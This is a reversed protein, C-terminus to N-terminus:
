LYLSKCVQRAVLLNVRVCKCVQRAVSSTCFESCARFLCGHSKHHLSHDHVVIQMAVFKNFHIVMLFM